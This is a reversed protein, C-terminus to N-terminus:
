KLDDLWIDAVGDSPMRWDGRPSLAVSGVKVGDPICSRKFQNSFFRNYFNKLWKDITAEDYEWEFTQMALFKVKSPEFGWRIAFYLFFDHLIYPGVLDETKQQINGEKDPPLLEPSIETALIDLLIKEAEGGLIGAEYRILHKVLTKPVSCNVAYMSMHDGNYTSWGLALESLDGTGLVLGGTKNALDMLILTRIRAQANEYTVDLTNSDQGIDAFHQQVMAGIPVEKVTAGLEEALRVANSKTKSTTGLGPMTVALIDTMPRELAKMTRVAVLIALSSDLGGSIGVVVTKAKTHQIRTELGKSQISLILETRETLAANDAPVFPQKPFVRDLKVEADATRFPIRGMPPRPGGHPWGCHSGDPDGPFPPRDEPGHPGGHPPRGDPGHPPRDEPGHPGHPGDEPGHPGHLGDEPGHPGHPTRDEPGHPGHPPRRDPNHRPPFEPRGHPAGDETTTEIPKAETEPEEAAADDAAKDATEAPKPADCPVAIHRGHPGRPDGTRPGPGHPPRGDPGHPGNPGPGHPGDPGPGDHPGCHPGEPGHPGDHPGCHPGEPGHPGHPGGPIPGCPGGMPMEPYYVGAMRRRENLLMEVDIDSCIIGNRFLESEALITGNESIINHGAFAMDTTSEGDGADAYVYACVLKGSQMKVLNRRYDAKGVLEDSCSLNVIITAGRLAAAQSPSVPAWLDECIEAGVTFGPFNAADFLLETGIPATQGAIRVMGMGPRGPTFHRREYFEGYNPLSTKPVCGLIRGRSIAVACNYLRNQHEVPAGIFFLMGSDKTQEAIDVLAEEAKSILAQQNFLDGCTYGTLCLEPFVALRAGKKDCEALATLISEKNYSVDAVRIKPTAACVKVFGHNM